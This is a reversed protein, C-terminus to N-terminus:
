FLVVSVNFVTLIDQDHWVYAYANHWVYAYAIHRSPRSCKGQRTGIVLCATKSMPKRWMDRTGANESLYQKNSTSTSVINASVMLADLSNYM